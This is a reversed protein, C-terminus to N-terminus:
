KNNKNKYKSYYFYIVLAFIALGFLIKFILKYKVLNTASPKPVDCRALKKLLNANYQDQRKKYIGKLFNQEDHCIVDYFTETQNQEIGLESIELINTTHLIHPGVVKAGHCLKMQKIFELPLS